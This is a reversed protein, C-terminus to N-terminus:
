LSPRRDSWPQAAEAQAAVRVLVDERGYGAVLQVGIPLGADTWHLPLSVAPQGTVNFPMTYAVVSAARFVGALPNDPTAAFQGLVLPPEPITPTLLLDWGAAWWQQIAASARHLGELGAVYETGTVSRGAEALAWTGPEMDAETLPRGIRAGYADVDAATWVFYCPLFSETLDAVDFAAADITEVRHGLSELLRAASEAGAVCDPHTPTQGDPATTLLGIRLRGPDVGAEDAYRRAPPSPTHIDGAVPGAVADLIAATDRVSRTVALEAVLGGWAEARPWLPVRGRSPKLGVLGCESAPIRISGGGDNAHGLAVMGSAVAAASGGSSGGTSRGTDWPNRSPGYADPETTPVLGLEPTNTRGICVLGAARFRRVLETDADAVYAADKVGKFGAHHADGESTAMLDKLVFPVGQFPGDALPGAAEARAKDFREIIVANLQPNLKEVREIATDVLERPSAQGTRVLDAQATADLWTTDTM